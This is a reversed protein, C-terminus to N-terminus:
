ILDLCWCSLDWLTILDVGPIYKKPKSEIMVCKINKISMLIPIPNPNVCLSNLIAWMNRQRIYLNAHTVVFVWLEDM